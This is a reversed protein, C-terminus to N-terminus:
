RTLLLGDFLLRLLLFTIFLARGPRPTAIESSNGTVVVVVPDRLASSAGSRLNLGDDEIHRLILM